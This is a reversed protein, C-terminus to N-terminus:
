ERSVRATVVEKGGSGVAEIGQREIGMWVRENERLM